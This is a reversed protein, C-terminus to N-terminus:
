RQGTASVNLKEGVIAMQESTLEWDHQFDIEVICSDYCLLFRMQPEGGLKLQYAENAGWPAANIEIHEQWMDDEPEPRGYNHAFDDLLASKCWNYLPPVKVTTISYELEPQELSDMCPRQTAEQQEMLISKDLTRVEYSYGDYDTDILNEITLPLEDHYINQTWGRFEFTAVPTKEPLFATIRSIVSILLIGTFGFSIVLTLIITINRNLKASLKLKKMLESTGVIIATIGLIIAISAFSILTM